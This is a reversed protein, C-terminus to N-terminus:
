TLRQWLSFCIPLLSFYHILLHTVQSSGPFLTGRPSGHLAYHVSLLNCWHINRMALRSLRATFVLGNDQSPSVNILLAIVRYCARQRFSLRPQVTNHRLAVFLPTFQTHTSTCAAARMIVRMEQHWQFMSNHPPSHWAIWQKSCQAGPRKIGGLRAKGSLGPSGFCALFCVSLVYRHTINSRHCCLLCISEFTRLLVPLDTVECCLLTLFVNFITYKLCSFIRKLLWVGVNILVKNSIHWM